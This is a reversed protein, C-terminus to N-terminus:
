CCCPTKSHKKNAEVSDIKKEKPQKTEQSQNLRNQTSDDNLEIIKRDPTLEFMTWYNTGIVIELMSLNIIWVRGNNFKFLFLFVM